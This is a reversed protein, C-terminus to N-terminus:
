LISNNAVQDRELCASSVVDRDGALIATVATFATGNSRVHVLGIGGSQCCPVGQNARSSIALAVKAGGERRGQVVGLLRM